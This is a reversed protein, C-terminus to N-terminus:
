HYFDDVWKLVNLFNFFFVERLRFLFGVFVCVFGIVTQSLTWGLKYRMAFVLM